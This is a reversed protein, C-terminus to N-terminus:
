DLRRYYPEDEFDLRLGEALDERSVGFSSALSDNWDEGAKVADIWEKFAPARHKLMFRVLMHSVPYSDETFWSGDIYSQNMIEIPDGGTRLFDRVHQWHRRPEDSNPTLYGAVYDALGEDAWTPLRAPSRYRYMFAHVTEHILVSNFRAADRGRFFSVYVNPGRFHCLGAAREANPVGMAEREFRVFDERLRFIFIVCKGNFLEADAPMALTRLLTAYMEDLKGAWRRTEAGSLDTYLLFHETEVLDLEVDAIRTKEAVDQKLWATAEALQSATLDPWRPIAGGEATREPRRSPRREATEPEADGSDGALAAAVAAPVDAGAREAERGARAALEPEEAFRAAVTLARSALDEDGMSEMLLALLVWGHASRRDILRRRADYASRSTLSGWAIERADDAGASPVFRFSDHDFAIIEGVSRGPEDALEISVRVPRPLDAGLAAPSPLAAFVLVAATLAAATRLITTM